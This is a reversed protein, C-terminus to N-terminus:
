PQRILTMGTNLSRGEIEIGNQLRTSLGFFSFGVEPVDGLAAWHGPTLEFRGASRPINCRLYNLRGFVTAVFQLQVTGVLEPTWRVLLAEGSRFRHELLGEANRIPTPELLVPESPIILQADVPGVIGGRVAFSAVTSAALPPTSYELYSWGLPRLTLRNTTPGISVRVDTASLFQPAGARQDLACNPFPYVRVGDSPSYLQAVADWRSSNPSAAFLAAGVTTIALRMPTPRHSGADATSDQNDPEDADPPTNSTDALLSDQDTAGDLQETDLLGADGLIIADPHVAAGCGLVQATVAILYFKDAFQRACRM